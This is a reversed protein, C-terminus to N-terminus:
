HMSVGWPRVYVHEVKFIILTSNGKLLLTTLNCIVLVDWKSKKKIIFM